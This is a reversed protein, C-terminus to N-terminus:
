RTLSPGATGSYHDCEALRRSWAYDGAAPARDLLSDARRAALPRPKNRLGPPLNPQPPRSVRAAAPVAQDGGLGDPLGGPCGARGSARRSGPCGARSGGPRVDAAAPRRGPQGRQRGPAGGKAKKKAKGRAGQSRRM